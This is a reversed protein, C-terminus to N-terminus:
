INHKQNIGINELLLRSFDRQFLHKEHPIQLKKSQFVLNEFLVIDIDIIRDEYKRSVYSDSIRGMDIEIQKIKELLQVPSFRTTISTAINCFINSSVFEVPETMLFKSIKLIQCGEKELLHLATEINKKQNGINSGLLLTVHHQSM